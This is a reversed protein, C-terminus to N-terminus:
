EWRMEHIQGQGAEYHKRKGLVPKFSGAQALQLRIMWM